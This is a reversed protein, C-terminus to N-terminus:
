EGLARRVLDRSFVPEGGQRLGSIREAIAFARSELMVRLLAEQRELKIKDVIHEVRDAELRAVIESADWPDVVRAVSEAWPAEASWLVGLGFFAPVIALRMGARGELFDEIATLVGNGPGGERAAAWPYLIGASAVGPEGPAIMADRALTQRQEEPIREPAYYTDRRAHPWCVDHFLLLPFSDPEAPEAILRLEESVTFHNHDGDIVYVDAAPLEALAEHSPRRVLDLEPYVRAVALLEPPPEPDIATVRAGSTRAWELLATTFEGKFAGVEVVRHPAAADLCPFLVEAFSAM